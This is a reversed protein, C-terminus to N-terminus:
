VYSSLVRIEAINEVQTLDNRAVLLTLVREGRSSIRRPNENNMQKTM